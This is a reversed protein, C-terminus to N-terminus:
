ISVKKKKCAEQWRQCDEITTMRKVRDDEQHSVWGMQNLDDEPILWHNEHNCEPCKGFSLHEALMAAFFNDAKRSELIKNIMQVRLWDPTDPDAIMEAIVEANVADIFDERKAM